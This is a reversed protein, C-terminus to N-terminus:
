GSHEQLWRTLDALNAFDLLAEALDELQSISLQQIQEIVSDDLQGLRRNLFRLILIAEGEQRGEQRGEAFVDQYFRTQRVDIETFGLMKVIEERSLHPLKYVIITEILDLLQKLLKDESIEQRTQRVLRQAQEIAMAEPIVVLQVLSLSLNAPQNRSLEDLYLRRVRQSNLLEEYHSTNTTEVRRSPYIVVAQWPNLPQYQRLYLFIEGFFRSYFDAESQFQVEVFFLPLELNNEPPCFLGDLRFATQKLEVSRFHYQEVQPISIELLDFLLSPLTQFLRYFLSDTKM